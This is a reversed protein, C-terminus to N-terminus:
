RVASTVSSSTSPIIMAPLFTARKSWANEGAGAVSHPERLPQQRAQSHYQGYGRGRAQADGLNGGLAIYAIPEANRM